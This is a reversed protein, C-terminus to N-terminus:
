APTWFNPKGRSARHAADQISSPRTAPIEDERSYLLKVKHAPCLWAGIVPGNRTWGPLEYTGGLATDNVMVSLRDPLQLSGAGPGAAAKRPVLDV